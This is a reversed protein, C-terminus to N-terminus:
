KNLIKKLYFINFLLKATELHVILTGTDRYYTIKNERVKFRTCYKNAKM